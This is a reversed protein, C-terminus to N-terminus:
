NALVCSVSTEDAYPLLIVGSASEKWDANKVNKVNSVSILEVQWPKNSDRGSVTFTLLEGDSTATVHVAEEANSDFVRCETRKSLEFVRYLTGGAYDYVTERDTSGQPIISNPRVLLPLHNYDYTRTYYKGGEFVEGTLYDTWRGEPVYFQVKGHENFIPAVMLSEGLMYQRELYSCQPDHPFELSMARMMPHGMRTVNVACAYLYPMLSCKLRAFRALVVTSEEDFYWPMRFTEMGHLRSHTSLLGFAAWRKYLDPSATGKFGSMDHASYGFGSTCLSLCGRLTETMSAYSSENDGGWTIPFQQTGVTAARGFIIADQKGFKDQMLEYIAKQYLFVYYNHMKVPDSGDFYVVDTPIREGFDTKLVDVGMDLVERIKGTYWKVADPNTFDVFAIAFAWDDSQYVSGDKKKLFYGKEMGERFLRSPQAVYPNMWCCVKLGREHIKQLLMRADGYRKDWLFDCIHFDTMWRADFHFVSLPIGNEEMRDIEDLVQEASLEPMWSTSLWLGFSWAPLVPTRGTLATYESLVNLPTDAGLVIYELSEGMVSFATHRASETGIEYGIYDPTNVLVGYGRNSLHFPICKYSQENNTCGPDRNWMDLSQGNRVLPIFREGLGYILEGVELTHRERIYAESMFGHPLKRHNMDALRDMEYAVDTIYATNGCGGSTLFHDKYYFRYEIIGTKNIEVRTDGSQLVLLTDTENIYAANETENLQFSPKCKCKGLFHDVRVSIANERPASFVYRLAVGHTPIKPPEYTGSLVYLHITNETVEYELIQQAGFIRYGPRPRWGGDNFKM